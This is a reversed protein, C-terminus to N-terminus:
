IIKLLSVFKPLFIIVCIIYFLAAPVLYHILPTKRKKRSSYSPRKPTLFVRVIFFIFFSLLTLAPFGALILPIAYSSFKGPHTILTETHNKYCDKLKSFFTINDQRQLQKNVICFQGSEIIFLYNEAYPILFAQGFSQSDVAFEPDEADPFSFVTKNTESNMEYSLTFHSTGEYIHYTLDDMNVFFLFRQPRNANMYFLPINTFDSGPCFAEIMDTTAYDFTYKIEQCNYRSNLIGSFSQDIQSASLSTEPIRIDDFHFSLNNRYLMINTTGAPVNIYISDRRFYPSGSMFFWNNKYYATLPSSIRMFFSNPRLPKPDWENGKLAYRKFMPTVSDNISVFEPNSEAFSMSVIKEHSLRPAPILTKLTDDQLMLFVYATDHHNFLMLKKNEHHCFGTLNYKNKGFDHIIQIKKENPLLKVFLNGSSVSPLTATCFVINSDAVLPPQLLIKNNQSIQQNDENFIMPANLQSISNSIRIFVLINFILFLILAIFFFLRKLMSEVINLLPFLM